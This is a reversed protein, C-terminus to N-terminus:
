SLRAVRVEAHSQQTFMWIAAGIMEGTGCRPVFSLLGGNEVAPFRLYFWGTGTPSPQTESGNLVNNECTDIAEDRM